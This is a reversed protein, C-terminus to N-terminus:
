RLCIYYLRKLWCIFESGLRHEPLRINTKGLKLRNPAGHSDQQNIAANVAVFFAPQHNPRWARNAWRWTRFPDRTRDMEALLQDHLADRRDACESDDIRNRLEGPDATLDFLQDDDDLNIVPKWEDRVICRVPYFNGWDDHNVAFRNFGTFVADRASDREGRWVPIQSVGHMLPPIPLGAIDLVSPIVDLHSVPATCVSGNQKENGNQKGLGGPLRVIFLICTTEEYMQPGKQTLGHELQYEGHDTTYIILTDDDPRARVRDIVRGIQTDIWRNCAWIPRFRERASEM